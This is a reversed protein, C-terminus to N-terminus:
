TVAGREVRGFKSPRQARLLWARRMNLTNAHASWAILSSASRGADEESLASDDLKRQLITFQRRFRLRRKGDFRMHNPWIRFGLFPVGQSTPCVLTVEPRLTLRLRTTIFHEISQASRWLERKNDGFLLLDDMYRCYGPSRLTRKVLQDVPGLYFNAFYQSTLNGIPLGEGTPLGPVGPDVFLGLLWRLSQDGIRRFLLRKLITHDVTAFFRRVDLKLVYKFQQALLQTWRMAAHSGKGARCAFSEEIAEAELTSALENCLAHQVVRDRFAAACIMRPKPDAISFRRYHRPRYSRSLLEGELRLIERELDLTFAMAERSHPKGHYASRAARCLPLFAAVQEFRPKDM